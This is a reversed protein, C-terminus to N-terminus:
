PIRFSRALLSKDALPLKWDGMAANERLHDVRTTGPIPIIHGGQVLLWALAVQHATLGYKNGVRRLSPDRGIAAGDRRGGLPAYCLYAIGSRGCTKVLGNRFDERHYVNCRNQVSAIGVIERAAQLQEPSVNSLGVHRVLGREQLRALAGVSEEFPVLPDPRHLQYLDIVELGLRRLSAECAATLAEPHGNVGWEAGRRVMGGKTAVVLEERRGGWSRVARGVLRENHGLEDEHLCYVDATDVLTCGADFAAHLLAIAESESPRGERSLEMAGFGVAGVAPGGAGLKRQKM